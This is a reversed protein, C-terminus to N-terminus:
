LTTEVIQGSESTIKYSTGGSSLTKVLVGNEFVLASDDGIGYAFNIDNDKYAKLFDEKRINYHPSATGKLVGLGDYLKYEDSVGNLIESDTYMKEFWCVAGASRGAIIVGREYADLIKSLINKEKWKSLMFLTDGGGVYIMDAKQFKEDIKEESYEVNVTLLCDAKVDFNSTYTKRFSNFAPMFDHSATGIFLAYARKDGAKEKALLAIQEDIKLTTKEKLSGGGIAIIRKM